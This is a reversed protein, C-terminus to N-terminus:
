ESSIFKHQQLAALFGASVDEKDYECFMVYLSVLNDDLSVLAEGVSLWRCQLLIINQRHEISCLHLVRVDCLCCCSPYVYVCEM